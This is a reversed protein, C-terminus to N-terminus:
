QARADAFTMGKTNLLTDIRTFALTTLVNVNLASEADLNAYSKLTVPGDSAANTVEDAYSGTASVALLPSAYKDNPTFAGLATTTYTYLNGTASLNLGLERVSVTSGALLPGKQAVGASATHTAAPPVLTTSGSPSGGGCAALLTSLALGLAALPASKQCRFPM